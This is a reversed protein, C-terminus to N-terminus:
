FKNIQYHSRDSRGWKEKAEAIENFDGGLIWPLNMGENLRIMLKWTEVRKDRTPNGYIGTFRWLGSEYKISVDIHGLSFSLVLVHLSDNWLLMLGGNNGRSPFSFCYNFGIRVKVKENIGSGCM